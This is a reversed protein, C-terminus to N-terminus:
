FEILGYVKSAFRSILKITKKGEEIYGMHGTNRLIITESNKSLEKHKNIIELSVRKDELGFILLSPVLGSQLINTKDNRQKMGEIAAIIAEKTLAAANEQLQKIENGFKDVNNTAFLESIFEYIFGIHNNRVIEIMRSRNKKVESSDAFAGSHFLVLGSLMKMYKDAFALAVYGGMSHGVIICEKIKIETLLAKVVDAMLEMSHVEAICESEGFGPLDVTIVRYNISLAKSFKTWIQQSELFGHLFVIVKGRGEENYCIRRKKYLFYRNM